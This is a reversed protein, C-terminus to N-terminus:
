SLERGMRVFSDRAGGDQLFPMTPQNLREAFSSRVFPNSIAIVVATFAALGMNFHWWLARQTHNPNLNDLKNPWNTVIIRKERIERLIKEWKPLIRWLL